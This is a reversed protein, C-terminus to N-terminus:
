FAISVHEDVVTFWQHEVAGRIVVADLAAATALEDITKAGQQQFLYDWIAARLDDVSTIDSV